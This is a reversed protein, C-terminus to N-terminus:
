ASPVIFFVGLCMYKSVLAFKLAQVVKIVLIVRHRKKCIIDIVYACVLKKKISRTFV